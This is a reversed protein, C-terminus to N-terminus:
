GNGDLRYTINIYNSHDENTRFELNLYVEILRNSQIYDAIRTAIDKIIQDRQLYLMIDEDEPVVSQGVPEFFEDDESIEFEKM